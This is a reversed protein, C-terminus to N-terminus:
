AQLDYQHLVRPTNDTSQLGNASDYRVRELTFRRVRHSAFGIRSNEVTDNPRYQNLHERGTAIQLKLEGTRFTDWTESTGNLIEFVM